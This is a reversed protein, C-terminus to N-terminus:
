APEEITVSRDKEVTVDAESHNDYWRFVEAMSDEPDGGDAVYKQVLTRVARKRKEEKDDAKEVVGSYDLELGDPDVENDADKEVTKNPDNLRRARKRKSYIDM